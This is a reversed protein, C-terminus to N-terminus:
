DSENRCPGGAPQERQRPFVLWAVPTSEQRTPGFPRDTRTGSVARWWATGMTNKDQSCNVNDDEFQQKHNALSRGIVKKSVRAPTSGPASGKPQRSPVPHRPAPRQLRVHAVPPPVQPQSGCDMFSVFLPLLRCEVLKEQRGGNQRQGM